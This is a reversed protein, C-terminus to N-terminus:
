LVTGCAGLGECGPTEEIFAALDSESFSLDLVLCPDEILRDLIAPTCVQWEGVTAPCESRTRSCTRNIEIAIGNCDLQRGSLKESAMSHGWECVGRHEAPSLEVLLTDSPINEIPVADDDGGGCAVACSLSAATALKRARAEIRM